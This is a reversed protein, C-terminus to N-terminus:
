LFVWYLMSKMLSESLFVLFFTILHKLDIILGNWMGFEFIQSIGRSKESTFISVNLINKIGETLGGFLTVFAWFM